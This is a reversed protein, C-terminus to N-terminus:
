VDRWSVGCEEDDEGAACPAETAAAVAALEAAAAARMAAYDFKPAAALAPGEQATASGALMTFHVESASRRDGDVTALVAALRAAAQAPTGRASPTFELLKAGARHLSLLPLAKVGAAKALAKAPPASCTVRAFLPAPAPASGLEAAAAATATMAAECHVCTPSLWELVVLQEPPAASLLAALADADVVETFVDSHATWWQTASAAARPRTRLPRGAAAPSPQLVRM